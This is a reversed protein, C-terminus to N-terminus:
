RRRTMEIGKKRVMQIPPTYPHWEHFWVFIKDKVGPIWVGFVGNKKSRNSPPAVITHITGSILNDTNTHDWSTSENDNEKSSGLTIKIQLGPIIWTSKDIGNHQMWNPLSKIYM